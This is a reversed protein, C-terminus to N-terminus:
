RGVLGAVRLALGDRSLGAPINLRPMAHPAPADAARWAGGVVRFGAAYGAARAAEYVVADDGGYPYAIWPRWAAAFRERLWPQPRAMEEARTAADVTALNVHSWTHSALTIPAGAVARALEGESAARAWAPLAGDRVPLGREAAWARVAADRGGLPGLAHARVAPDVEGDDGALADWWFSGGGVFTPVVFITAPMDRRALEAAGAVVAGQYADDFTIAVRPRGARPAPGALLRELPVVDAMAALADLQAAFDRQPLHLSREGTPAAGEPAIGHYALVLTRDRVLLRALRAPGGALVRELSRKVLQRM